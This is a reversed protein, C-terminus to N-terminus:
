SHIIYDCRYCLKVALHRCTNLTNTRSRVGCNVIHLSLMCVYLFTVVCFLKEDVCFRTM